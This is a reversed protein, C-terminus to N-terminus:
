FIQSASKTFVTTNRGRPQRPQSHAIWWLRSTGSSYCVYIHPAFLWYYLSGRSHDRTISTFRSYLQSYNVVTVVFTIEVTAQQWLTFSQAFAARDKRDCCYYQNHVTVALVTIFLV